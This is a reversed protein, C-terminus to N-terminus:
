GSAYLRMRGVPELDSDYRELMHHAVSEPGIVARLGAGGFVSVSVETPLIHVGRGSGTVSGLCGLRPIFCCVVSVTVSM